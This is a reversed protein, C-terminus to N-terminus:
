VQSPFGVLDGEIAQTPPGFTGDIAARAQECESPTLFSRVVTYGLEALEASDILGGMSQM